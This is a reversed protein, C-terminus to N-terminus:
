RRIGLMSVTSIHSAAGAPSVATVNIVYDAPPLQRRIVYQRTHGALDVSLWRVTFRRIACGAASWLHLSVTVGSANVSVLRGPEPLVPARGSTRAKVTRSPQSSGLRNITRLRLHYVTGCLLGTLQHERVFRELHVEAPDHDGAPWYQLRYGRIALGGPDGPSWRVAVSHSTADTVRLAPSPPVDLVIVDYTVHDSGYSNSVHCSYNGADRTTVAPVVLQGDALQSYRGLPVIQASVNDTTTFRVPRSQRGEGAATHAAVRVAYESRGSLGELPEGDAPPLVTRREERTEDAYTITREASNVSRIYVSYATIVGNPGVGTVAAVRFSYNSHPRLDEVTTAGKEVDHVSYFLEGDWEDVAETKVPASRPSLGRSNYAQVSVQYLTYPRLASLTAATATVNHVSSREADAFHMNGAPRSCLVRYGLLLGHRADAPPARWTVRLDTSTLPLLGLQQPPRSPAETLTLARLLYSTDPRLGGLQVRRLPLAVSRASEWGDTRRTYQLRYGTVHKNIQDPRRWELTVSRSQVQVVKLDSPPLPTDEIDLSFSLQAKGRSNEAVCSFFGSDPPVAELLRLTSRSVNRAGTWHRIHLRVNEQLLQNQRFWQLTMPEDGSPDCTLTVNQGERVRVQRAPTNFSPLAFVDLRPMVSLGVGVGNSVECLYAGEHAATIAGIALSGNKLVALGAVAAAALEFGSADKKKWKIEPVPFGEAACPMLVASGLSAAVDQPKEIWRPPVNVRLEATYTTVRAANEARCTYNGAHRVAVREIFLSSSYRDTARQEVEPDTLPRGDRLWTLTLPTDGRKVFCLVQVREGTSYNGVMFPRISPPVLVQLNVRGTATLQRDGRATCHYQGGGGQRQVHDLRLTGNALVTQHRDAPLTQGDM